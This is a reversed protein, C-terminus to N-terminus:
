VDRRKQNQSQYFKNNRAERQHVKFETFDWGIVKPNHLYQIYEDMNSKEIEQQIIERQKAKSEEGLLKDRYFKPMAVKHGGVNTVFNNNLNEQHYKIIDDSLYNDGLGKSMVPFERQRDDRGFQKKYSPKDIYKMTYAVSSSTVSGVHVSGLMKNGLSWAKSYHTSDLVNFIIAHYHPRKNLSGYEGVAYYKIKTDPCLKRLRKFFNQLDHKKLTMFGNPTIPVFETDYTLTVFHAGVSRKEEQMLRFVWQNVRRIKCPACKGCPVPVDETGTGPKVMYPSDCAM